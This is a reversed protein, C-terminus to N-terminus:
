TALQLLLLLFQGEDSKCYSVSFKIETDDRIVYFIYKDINRQM